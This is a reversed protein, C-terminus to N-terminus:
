GRRKSSILFGAFSESYRNSRSLDVWCITDKTMCLCFSPTIPLKKKASVPCVSSSGGEAIM